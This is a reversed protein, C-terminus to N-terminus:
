TMRKLLKDYVARLRIANQTPDFNGVALARAQSGMRKVEHRNKEFYEIADALAQPNKAPVTLGTQREILTDPQPNSVCAICPVSSFAAEFVPRGPADFHSPFTIVDLREYVTQIDGTAGFLHFSNELSYEAIRATLDGHVDQALGVRKLLWGKLGANVRTHGGVIVFEVDAGQDRLIKAAELLDFLGKSHHLNGVFGVKLSDRRLFDLKAVMGEDPVVARKPTFSNQIVNVALEAPLTLRTTHNIAIVADASSALKRNIWRTRLSGRDTRQPSRVHVVMPVRFLSKAILGPIIETVENVHILEIEGRWEHRAKCLAALTLPFHFLERLLVLWRVGRYHSYATNDFRTLGRTAVMGDAVKSYFDLSTGRTGVFYAQVGIGKLARVSEFLSRSAGGFPGVGDLYLIKIPRQAPSITKLEDSM